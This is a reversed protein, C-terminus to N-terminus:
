TIAPAKKEWGKEEAMDAKDRATFFVDRTQFGRENKKSPCEKQPLSCGERM